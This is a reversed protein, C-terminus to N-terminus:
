LFFEVESELAELRCAHLNKEMTRCVDAVVKAKLPDMNEYMLSQLLKTMLRQLGLADDPFPLQALPGAKWEAHARCRTEGEAVPYRCRRGDARKEQCMERALQGHDELLRALKWRRMLVLFTQTGREGELAARSTPNEIPSQCDAITLPAIGMERMKGEITEWAERLREQEERWEKTGRIKRYPIEVVEAM